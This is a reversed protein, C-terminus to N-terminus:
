LRKHTTLTVVDFSHRTQAINNAEIAKRMALGLDPLTIEDQMSIYNALHIDVVEFDKGRLRKALTTM